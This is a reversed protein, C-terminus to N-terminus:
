APSTTDGPAAAPVLRVVTELHFTDPFMDFARLADPRYGHRALHALDRGLTPPDCSVYVIARPRRSAVLEVVDLGAGSRPPDLVVAEGPEPPWAALAQRVDGHFTRLGKVGTRRANERADEAAVEDAEAARVAQGRQALPIAFLGVGSYLDLAPGEVPMLDLVTRVLDELLFRNAQFFAQAHSTLRLGAVRHGLRPSGHLMVFVGRGREESLAGLGTLVPAASRLPVLAVSEAPLLRTELTAVVGGDTGEALHLAQLHRWLEPRADLGRKLGRAAGLLAPSLQLCRELDVVFRTGEEHLGLRLSGGRGDFHLSARM